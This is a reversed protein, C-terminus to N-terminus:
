PIAEMLDVGPASDDPSPGKEEPQYQGRRTPHSEDVPLLADLEVTTKKAPTPEAKQISIVIATIASVIAVVISVAAGVYLKKASLRREEAKEATSKHEKAITEVECKMKEVDVTLTTGVTLIRRELESSSRKLEDKLQAVDRDHRETVLDFQGEIRVLIRETKAAVKRLEELQTVDDQLHELRVTVERLAVSLELHPDPPPPM